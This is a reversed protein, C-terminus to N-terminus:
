YCCIGWGDQGCTALLVLWVLPSLTPNPNPNAALSGIYQLWGAGASQPLPLPPLPPTGAWGLLHDGCQPIYVTTEVEQTHNHVQLTEYKRERLKRVSWGKISRLLNTSFM